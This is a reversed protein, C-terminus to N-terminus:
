EELTLRGAVIMDVDAEVTIVLPRDHRVPYGGGAPAEYSYGLDPRVHVTKPGIRVIIPRAGEISLDLGTMRLPRDDDAEALCIPTPIGAAIRTAHIPITLM